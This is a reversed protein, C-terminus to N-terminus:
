PSPPLDAPVDAIWITSASGDEYRASFIASWPLTVAHQAGGFQLTCTISSDDLHLDPIPPTLHRGIRLVLHAERHADPVSVEARRADLDVLVPAHALMADVVARKDATAEPVRHHGSPVVAEVRTGAHWRVTEGTTELRVAHVAPWPVIAAFGLNGFRLTGSIATDDIELDTIPPSLDYGFRLSLATAGAHRPHVVVGQMRPDLDIVISGREILLEVTDRKDIAAADHAPRTGRL